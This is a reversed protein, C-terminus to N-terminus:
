PAQMGGLVKGILVERSPLDALRRIEKEQIAKGELIGGKIELQKFDRMFETLIKVPAVPDAFGFAIATPGELYVDLGQLGAERAALKALTNKAVKLESGSDRLRRRLVTVAAVDLGRYDTLVAVTSAQFKEKLEALVKQKEEKTPM